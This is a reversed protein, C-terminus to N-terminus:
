LNVVLGFSIVKNMPYNKGGEATYDNKTFIAEPDFMGKLTTFTLLNEGSFFVQVKQLGVKKTWVAPIDYSVTLNKLRCYAGSQLYRDSLTMTKNRFPVVGGATHIYPKPYYAGTNTESWYDLHEKFVTVQAYPGSGWFYAGTGPDWDRKAVGQFMASVTVGKWSISGNITYQYRPTTNGIVTMDGMDDLTNLGNNIKKDGNLDRYKVDGPTWPKGSDGFKM